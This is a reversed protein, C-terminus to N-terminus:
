SKLGQATHSIIKECEKIFENITATEETFKEETMGGRGFRDCYSLLAIEKYSVEDIMRSMGARSPSKKFHLVQMHWRVLKSVKDIFEEDNNFERLFAKSLDAGVSAHGHASIKGDSKKTTPVKGIDHLLAAWMFVRKNESKDIKEAAKDVVLMTHNWVNGEPHHKKPQYIDKLKKLLIFPYENFYQKESERNFYKSPQKDNLLHKEFDKFIANYDTM